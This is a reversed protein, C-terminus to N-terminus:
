KFPGEQLEQRSLSKMIYRRKVRTLSRRYNSGYAAFLDLKAANSLLAVYDHRSMHGVITRSQYAAKRLRFYTGFITDDRWCLYSLVMEDFDQPSEDLNRTKWKLRKRLYKVIPQNETSYDDEVALMALNVFANLINAKSAKIGITLTKEKRNLLINRTNAVCEIREVKSLKAISKADLYACAKEFVSRGIKYIAESREANTEDVLFAYRDLKLGESPAAEDPEDAEDEASKVEDTSEPPPEEEDADEEAPPEEAVEEKMEAEKAEAEKAEAHPIEVPEPAVEAEVSEVKEVKEVSAPAIAGPLPVVLVEESPEPAEPSPARLGLVVAITTVLVAAVGALAYAKPGIRRPAEGRSLADIAAVVEGPTAFRRALKPHCMKAILEAVRRPVKPNVSRVNPIKEGQVAKAMLEMFTAKAFPRTGAIMEFLVVGLSYIDSRIDVGHPDLMQEPSMYAPTGILVGSKTITTSRVSSNRAIGLDALKIEGSAGFMINDPKIDRHVIGHECVEDLALAIQRTYSLAEEITLKGRSALLNQLSGGPVYEMLIYCLGTDPDEGIDYTEILHASKVKQAFQAERLFRVRSEKDDAISPDLIKVVCHREDTGKLLFVSGMGGQGLLKVVEYSGFRDGVHLM